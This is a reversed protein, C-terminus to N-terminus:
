RPAPMPRSAEACRSAAAAAAVAQELDVGVLVRQAGQQARRQRAEGRPRMVSPSRARARCRARGRPAARARRAASLCRRSAACPAALRYIRAPAANPGIRLATTVIWRNGPTSTRLMSRSSTMSPCRDREARPGEIQQERQDVAALAQQGLAFEEIADPGPQHDLFVVQLHLDRRQALHEARVRDRGDGAAAVPEGQRREAGRRGSTDADTPRAAARRGLGAAQPGVQRSVVRREEAPVGVQERDLFQEMAVGDDGDGAGAPHALRAQRLADGRADALAEGVTGPPDLQRREAGAVEDAGGDRAHEAHVDAALARQALADHGHQAAAHTAPARCSRVRPRRPRRAPRAGDAGASRVNAQQHRALFRQLHRLLM